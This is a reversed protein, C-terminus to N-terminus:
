SVKERTWKRRMGRVDEIRYGPEGYLEGAPEVWRMAKWRRWTREPVPERVYESAMIIEVEASTFLAYPDALRLAILEDVTRVAM